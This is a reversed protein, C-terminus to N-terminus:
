PMEAAAALGAGASACEMGECEAPAREEQGGAAAGATAAEAAAAAAAAAAKLTPMNEHGHPHQSCREQLGSGACGAEKGMLMACM